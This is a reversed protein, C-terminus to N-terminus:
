KVLNSGSFLVYDFISPTVPEWRTVEIAKTERTPAQAKANIQYAQIPLTNVATVRLSVTNYLPRIRVLRDTSNAAMTYSRLYQNTGSTSVNILGNSSDLNCANIGVRRVQYNSDIVTILLSAATKGSEASVGSCNGPNELDSFRDIWEITLTNNNGGLVVQASENEKFIGELYRRDNVTYEVPINNVELSQPVGLPISSITKLATEIGAEAANFARASEQEQQSIRIDTTSLSIISLGLGLAVAAVLLVMLLAQGATQQKIM